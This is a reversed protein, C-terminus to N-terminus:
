QFVIQYSSSDQYLKLYPCASLNLEAKLSKMIVVHYKEDPPEVIGLTLVGHGLVSTWSWIIEFGLSFVLM